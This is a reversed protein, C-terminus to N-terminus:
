TAPNSVLLKPLRDVNVDAPEEMERAAKATRLDEKTLEIDHRAIVSM